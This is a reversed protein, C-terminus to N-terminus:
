VEAITSAPYLKYGAPVRGLLGLLLVKKGDLEGEELVSFAEGGDKLTVQWEAGDGGASALKKIKALDIKLTKKFLLVPSLKEGDPTRYLAQLDTVKEETKKRYEATVRAPRGAAGAAA